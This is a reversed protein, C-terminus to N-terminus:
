GIAQGTSMMDRHISFVANLDFPELDLEWLMTKAKLDFAAIRTPYLWHGDGGLYRKTWRVKHQWRTQRLRSFGVVVIDDDLIEIGRCWGLPHRTGMLENLRVYEILKRTTADVIAITGDVLTFFIKDKYIVGDHPNAGDGLDILPQEKTLCMADKSDCRTVWTEGDLQFLFNPHSLHPKTSGIKRYDVDRSFRSWPSENAVAWERLVEGSESLEFVMDLGTSAVYFTDSGNPLVHHLDNFHPLSVYNIKEFDPLRYILVETTTPVYLLDGRLTAAKFTVSKGDDPCVQAPSEYDLRNTIEGTATDIRVVVAGCYRNWLEKDAADKRQTGGVVYLAPKELMARDAAKDSTVNNDSLFQM